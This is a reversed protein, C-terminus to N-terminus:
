HREEVIEYRRLMQIRIVVGAHRMRRSQAACIEILNINSNLSLQCTFHSSM